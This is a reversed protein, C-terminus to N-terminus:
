CRNRSRRGILATKKFSHFISLSPCKIKLSSVRLVCAFLNFLPFDHVADQNLM